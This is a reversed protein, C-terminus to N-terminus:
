LATLFLYHPSYLMMLVRDASLVQNIQRIKGEAIVRLYVWNFTVYEVAWKAAYGKIRESFFTSFKNAFIAAMLVTFRIEIGLFTQYPRWTFFILDKSFHRNSVCLSGHPHPPAPFVLLRFEGDDDFFGGGL